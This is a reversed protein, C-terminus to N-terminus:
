WWPKVQEDPESESASEESIMSIDLTVEPDNNESELYMRKKRRMTAKRKRNADPKWNKVVQYIVEAAEWYTLKLDSYRATRYLLNITNKYNKIPIKNSTKGAWCCQAIFLRDFFKEALQLCATRGGGELYGVAKIVSLIFAKDAAKAELEELEALSKVQSFPMPPKIIPMAYPTESKKILKLAKQVLAYVSPDLSSLSLCDSGGQQGQDAEESDTLPPTSASRAMDAELLLETESPVDPLKVIGMSKELEAIESMVQRVLSTIEAAHSNTQETQQDRYVLAPSDAAPFPQATQQQITFQQPAQQQLTFQQGGTSTPVIKIIYNGTLPQVNQGSM